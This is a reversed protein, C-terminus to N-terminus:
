RHPSSSLGSKPNARSGLLLSSLCCLLWLCMSSLSPWTFMSCLGSPCTRTHALPEPVVLLCSLPWSEGEPGGSPVWEASGEINAM